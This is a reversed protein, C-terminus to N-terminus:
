FLPLRGLVLPTLAKGASPCLLLMALGQLLTM